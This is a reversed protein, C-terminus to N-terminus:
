TLDSLRMNMHHVADQLNDYRREISFYLLLTRLESDQMDGYFPRIRVVNDTQVVQNWRDDIILCKDLRRRTLALDKIPMGEKNRKCSDRYLRHTILGDPDLRDIIPSAYDRGGATFIVIEYDYDTAVQLLKDVGPRKTVYCYQTAFDYQDPKKGNLPVHCILTEDMDLFLTKRATPPLPLGPMPLGKSSVHVLHRVDIFYIQAKLFSVLSRLEVDDANGTFKSVKIANRWPKVHLKPNYDIIVSHDLMRGTKYLNIVTKPDFSYEHFLRHTILKGTPDIHNLIPFMYCRPKSFTVIEFCAKKAANLFENLGPRLTVYLTWTKKTKTVAVISFDYGGPPPSLSIHFITRSACIFLTKKKSNPLLFPTSNCQSNQSSPISPKM